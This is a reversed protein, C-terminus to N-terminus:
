EKKNSRATARCGPREEEGGGGEEINMNELDEGEGRTLRGGASEKREGGPLGSRHYRVGGGREGEEPGGKGFRGL